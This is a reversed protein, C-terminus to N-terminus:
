PSSTLTLIMLPLCSPNKQCHHAGTVLYNYLQDPLITHYGSDALM